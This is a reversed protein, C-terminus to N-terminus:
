LMESDPLPVKRSTGVPEFSFDRRSDTVDENPHVLRERVLRRNLTIVSGPIRMEGRRILTEVTTRLFAIIVSRLAIAGDATAL